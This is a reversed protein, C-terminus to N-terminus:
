GPNGGVAGQSSGQYASQKNCSSAPHKEGCKGCVHRFKCKLFNCSSNNFKWCIPSYASPINSQTKTGFRPGVSAPSNPKKNGQSSLSKWHAVRLTSNFIHHHEDNWQVGKEVVAIRVKQDYEFAKAKISADDVLYTMVSEGHVCYGCVQELSTIVGAEINKRLAKLNGQSFEPISLEPLTKKAKQKAGPLFYLTGGDSENVVKAREEFSSYQLPDDIMDPILFVRKKGKLASGSSTLDTGGLMQILNAALDPTSLTADPSIEVVPDSNPPHDSLPTSASLPKLAASLFTTQALSLKNEFMERLDKPSNGSILTLATKQIFGSEILLTKVQNPMGNKTSWDTFWQTEEPVVPSSGRSNDLLDWTDDRELFRSDRPHSNDSLWSYLKNQLKPLKRTNGFKVGFSNLVSQLELCDLESVFKAM